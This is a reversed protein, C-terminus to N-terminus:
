RRALWGVIKSAIGDKKVISAGPALWVFHPENGILREIRRFPFNIKIEKVKSQMEAIGLLELSKSDYDMVWYPHYKGIVRSAVGHEIFHKFQLRSGGNPYKVKTIMYAGIRYIEEKGLRYKVKPTNSKEPVTTKIEGLDTAGVITSSSNAQNYNRSIVNSSTLKIRPGLAKVIERAEDVHLAPDFENPTRDCFRSVLASLQLQEQPNEFEVINGETMYTITYIMQELFDM